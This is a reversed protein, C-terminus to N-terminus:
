APRTFHPQLRCACDPYLESSGAWTREGCVRDQRTYIPRLRHGPIQLTGRMSIFIPGTLHPWALGNCWQCVMWYLTAKLCQSVYRVWHSCERCIILEPYNMGGEKVCRLRILLLSLFCFYSVNSKLVNNCHQYNFCFFIFNFLYDHKM